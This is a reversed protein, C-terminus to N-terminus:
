ASIALMPPDAFPLVDPATSANRDEAEEDTVQGFITTDDRYQVVAEAAHMAAAATSAEGHRVFKGAPQWVTWDWRNVRPLPEVVLHYRVTGRQSMVTVFFAEDTKRWIHSMCSRCRRKVSCGGDLNQTPETFADGLVLSHCGRIVHGHWGCTNGGDRALCSACRALVSRQMRRARRASLFFGADSQAPAACRPWSALRAQRGGGWTSNLTPGLSSTAKTYPATGYDNTLDAQDSMTTNTGNLVMQSPIAYENTSFAELNELVEQKEIQAIQNAMDTTMVKNPFGVCATSVLCLTLSVTRRAM